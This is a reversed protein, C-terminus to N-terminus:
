LVEFLHFVLTGGLLQFTGIYNGVEDPIDHGTGFIAFRRKCKPQSPDVLAWLVAQDGQMQVTLVQALRPMDLTTPELPICYKWITKV